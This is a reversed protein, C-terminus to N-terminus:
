SEFRKCWAYPEIPGRVSECRPLPSGDGPEIFHTCGECNEGEHTSRPEYEVESKKFKDKEKREAM